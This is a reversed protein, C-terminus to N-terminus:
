KKIKNKSKLKFLFLKSDVSKDKFAKFRFVETFINKGRLCCISVNDTKINKQGEYTDKETRKLYLFHNGDLVSVISAGKVRVKFKVTNGKKLHTTRPELLFFGDNDYCIKKNNKSPFFYNYDNIIKPQYNLQSNIKRLKPLTLIDKKELIDKNLNLKLKKYKDFHSFSTKDHIKIIYDILPWYVLDTLAVSRCNIRLIYDGNSPFIPELIFLNQREIYSYKVDAIKNKGSIDYLDSQLVSKKIKLKIELNEKSTIEIIPYNHTLLEVNYQYIGQYFQSIDPYNKNLFQISSVTKDIFQWNDETPRHTMILFKPLPMFYFPNFFIDIDECIKKENKNKLLVEKKELIGGSALMTDVFYWKGKIYVANWCHNIPLINEKNDEYLLNSSSKFSKIKKILKIKANKSTFTIINNQNPSFFKIRENNDNNVKINLNSINNKMTKSLENNKLPNLKMYKPILKCYGELHKYKIEMKKLIYEFLNTFGISLAKGKNYVSEPKQFNKINVNKKNNTNENFNVKEDDNNKKLFSSDYKIEHCVFYFAMMVSELESHNKRYNIIYECIQGFSFNKKSPLNAYYKQFSSDKFINGIFKIRELADEPIGNGRVKHPEHIREPSRSLSRSNERDIKYNTLSFNKNFFGKFQLFPPLTPTTENTKTLHSLYNNKYNSINKPYTDINLKNTKQTNYDLDQTSNENQVM